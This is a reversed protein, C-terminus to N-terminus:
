RHVDLEGGRRRETLGVACAATHSYPFTHPLIHLRVLDDMISRMHASVEETRANPDDAFVKFIPVASTAILKVKSDYCADVFTIFRRAQPCNIDPMRGFSSILISSVLDKRDLGMKPVDLLFITGFNKTIELYDAASLPKGCLDMFDFKAVTSTSEAVLLTRGWTELKRNHLVPDAPDSTYASWIKDVERKNAESLPDYYVHSLTRPIRRYDLRFQTLKSACLHRSSPEGTGSDLDTVEFREKLLHICPVFSSRQIGNKYLDDPHRSNYHLYRRTPLLLLVYKSTMVCVVGHNLLKEFLQRLIMADAIDTM